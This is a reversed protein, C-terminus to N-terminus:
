SRDEIEWAHDLAHWASRRVYYRPSWLDRTRSPEAPAEGRARAGLAKLATSRILAMRTAPNAESPRRSGLKVLYAEDAERVHAVMKAVDRGGGRPGTRLTVGTAANVAADFTSWAASLLAVQRELDGPALPRADAAPPTGPAGFDTTAGGAVRDVVHLEDLTAPQAFDLGAVDVVLGYRPAYEILAGMADEATRGARCWGPWDVACAFVRKAGTELSVAVAAPDPPTKARRRRTPSAAM